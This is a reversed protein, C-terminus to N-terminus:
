TSLEDYGTSIKPKLNNVTNLVEEQEVPEVFMSHPMPNKLYDSFHKNTTKVKQGTLNGITSFYNNFSNVIEQKSSITKNNITFSDPFTSITRHKGLVQKLIAWTKKINTKNENIQQTFYNTKMSRKLRNYLNVYAKYKDINQNTPRRIKIRYLKSKTRMSTLLGQTMWAHIKTYKRNPKVTKLPFAKGFATTYHNHFISYSEIPCTSNMIDSFDINNLLDTFKQRNKVSFIRKNAYEAKPKIPKNKVSYLIGFHDAVDTTIIGSVCPLDIINTYIHDILTASSKDVRTPKLIVPIFGNTIVQDVFENTNDHTYYKLLDINLDGMIVSTKNETNIINMTVHFTNTFIDMNARPPTNPRYVVGVIHNPKHSKSPIEIFLSEYVHPIFVSLDDRVRYDIGEKIFLGIGGRISDPRCRMLLKQFGPIYLRDDRECNFIESIGIVDFTFTEDHLESILEDFTEWNHSLSRCNLHFYSYNNQLNNRLKGFDDSSMYDSLLECHKYISDSTDEESFDNFSELIAKLNYLDDGEIQDLSINDIM